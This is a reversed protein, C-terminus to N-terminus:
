SLMISCKTAADPHINVKDFHDAEDYLIKNENRSYESIGLNSARVNLWAWALALCHILVSTQLM